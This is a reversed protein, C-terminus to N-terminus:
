SARSDRSGEGAQHFRGSVELFSQFSGTARYAFMFTTTPPGKPLVLPLDYQAHVVLRVPRVPVGVQQVLWRGSSRRYSQVYVYLLPGRRICSGSIAMDVLV